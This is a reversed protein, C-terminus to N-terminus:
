WGWGSRELPEGEQLKTGVVTRVFCLGCFTEAQMERRVQRLIGEFEKATTVGTALLFSRVQHGFVWAQQSFTSHFPTGASIDLAYTINETIRCGANRMWSGMYATIGLSSGPAPSFARGAEQLARVVLISLQECAFSNTVPLEAETYILVGGPRCLHVSAQFLSPGEQPTIEGTLFSLHILDFSAPAFDPGELHHLDQEIFAANSVKELGAMKRAQAIFYESKDIGIVQMAPYMRALDIVWRGVGCAVDLVRTVHSLDLSSPLIGGMLKSLIQHRLLLRTVETEDEPLFRPPINQHSQSNDDLPASLQNPM